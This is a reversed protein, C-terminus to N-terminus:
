GALVQDRAAIQVARLQEVDTVGAAQAEVIAAVMADQIRKNLAAASADGMDAHSTMSAVASVIVSGDSPEDAM